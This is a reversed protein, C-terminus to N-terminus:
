EDYVVGILTANIEALNDSNNVAILEIVDGAEFNVARFTFETNFNTYYIRKKGKLAANVYLYYTSICDSSILISEIGFKKGVPVTYTFISTSVSKVVSNALHYNLLTEGGSGFSIIPIADANSNGVVVERASYINGRKSSKVFSKDDKDRLTGNSQTEIAM